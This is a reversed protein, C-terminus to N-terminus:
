EDRLSIGLIGTKVGVADVISHHADEIVVFDIGPFGQEDGLALRQTGQTAGQESRYSMRRRNLVFHVIETKGDEGRASLRRSVTRAFQAPRVVADLPQCRKGVAAEGIWGKIKDGLCGLKAERPRAKHMGEVLSDSGRWMPVHEVKTEVICRPHEGASITRHCLNAELTSKATNGAEVGFEPARETRARAVISASKRGRLPASKTYSKAGNM